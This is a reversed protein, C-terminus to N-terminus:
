SLEEKAKELAKKLGALISKKATYGNIPYSESWLILRGSKNFIKIEMYCPYAGQQFPKQKNIHDLGLFSKYIFDRQFFYIRTVLFADLGEERCINIIQNTDISECRILKDFYKIGNIENEFTKRVAFTFDSYFKLYLGQTIIDYESHVFRLSKVEKYEPLIFPQSIGKISPISVLLFIFTTKLKNM